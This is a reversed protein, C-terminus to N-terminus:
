MTLIPTTPATRLPLHSYKKCKVFIDIFLLARRAAKVPEELPKRDM